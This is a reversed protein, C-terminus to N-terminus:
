CTWMVHRERRRQTSHLCTLASVKTLSTSFNLTALHSCFLSFLLAKKRYEKRGNEAQHSELKTSRSCTLSKQSSSVSPFSMPTSTNLRLVYVVGFRGITSSVRAPGLDHFLCPMSTHAAKQNSLSRYPQVIAMNVGSAKSSLIQAKSDDPRYKYQKCGCPRKGWTWFHACGM